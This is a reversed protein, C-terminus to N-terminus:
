TSQASLFKYIFTDYFGVATFHYQAEDMHVNEFDNLKRYATKLGPSTPKRKPRSVETSTMTMASDHIEKREPDFNRSERLSPRPSESAKRSPATEDQILDAAEPGDFLETHEDYQVSGAGQPELPLETPTPEPKQSGQVPM